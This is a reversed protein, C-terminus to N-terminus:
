CQLPCVLPTSHVGVGQTTTNSVRRETTTAAPRTCHSHLPFEGTCLVYCVERMWRMGRAGAYVHTYMRICARHLRAVVGGVRITKGLTGTLKTYQIGCMHHNHEQIAKGRVVLLMHLM